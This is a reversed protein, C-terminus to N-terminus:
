DNCNRPKILFYLWVAENALNTWLSYTFLLHYASYGSFLSAPGFIQVVCRHSIWMGSKPKLCRRFIRTGICYLKGFNLKVLVNFFWFFTFFYSFFVFVTGIPHPFRRIRRQWRRHLCFQVAIRVASRHLLRYVSLVTRRYSEAEQLCWRKSLLKRM